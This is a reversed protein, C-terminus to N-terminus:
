QIFQEPEGFNYLAIRSGCQEAEKLTKGVGTAVKHDGVMIDVIFHSNVGGRQFVTVFQPRDLKVKRAHKLLRDKYNSDVMIEALNAHRELVGMFFQKAANIGLDLYIAGILAEFVDELIRPNSNWGKMLGKQHMIVFNQLGVKQAISALFKGSVFKTRLRTLFGEDKDPFSEYLFRTIVFGLVSDGIFEMREYTVTNYTFATIYYSMDIIEMGVLREIDDKTFMVGSSTSPPLEEQLTTESVTDINASTM